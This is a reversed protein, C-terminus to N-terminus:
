LIYSALYTEIDKNGSRAAVDVPRRYNENRLEPDAGPIVAFSAIIAAVDFPINPLECIIFTVTDKMKKTKLKSRTEMLVKVIEMLGEEAALHLATGNWTDRKDVDCSAEILARLIDINNKFLAMHLPTFGAAREKLNPNAKADLLTTVIV